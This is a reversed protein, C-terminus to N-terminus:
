ALIMRACENISRYQDFNTHISIDHLGLKKMLNYCSINRKHKYKLVRIVENCGQGIDKHVVKISTKIWM